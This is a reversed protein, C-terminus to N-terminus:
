VGVIERRAAAALFASRTMGRARAAADVARLLGREISVNIREPAGDAPIYPVTMLTAGEALAAGVDPRARLSDISSPVLDDADEFWLDLAEVAARPIEDWTDAAAHAGPLDPFTLGYASGDDKHVIATFLRM